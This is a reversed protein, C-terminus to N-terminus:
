RGTGRPRREERGVVAQLIPLLSASQANFTALIPVLERNVKREETLEGILRENERTLREMESDSHLHGKVFLWFVIGLVGLNVASLGFQIIDSTTLTPVTENTATVAYGIVDGAIAPLPGLRGALCIPAAWTM